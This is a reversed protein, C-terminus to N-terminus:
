KKKNDLIEKLEKITYGARIWGSIELSKKFASVNPNKLEVIQRILKEKM